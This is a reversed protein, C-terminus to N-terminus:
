VAAEAVTEGDWWTDGKSGDGDTKAKRSEELELFSALTDDGKLLVVSRLNHMLMLLPLLLLLLLVFLFCGFHFVSRVLM